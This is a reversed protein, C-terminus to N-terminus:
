IEAEIESYLEVYLNGALELDFEDNAIIQCKKSITTSRISSVIQQVRGEQFSGLLEKTSVTTVCETRDSLEDIIDIGNLSIVPLGSAFYEGLKTPSCVRRWYSTEVM